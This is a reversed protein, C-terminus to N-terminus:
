STGSDYDMVKGFAKRCSDTKRPTWIKERYKGGIDSFWIPGQQNVTQPQKARPSMYENCEQVGRHVRDHDEEIRIKIVLQTLLFTYLRLVKKKEGGSAKALLAKIGTLAM